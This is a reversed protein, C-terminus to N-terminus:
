LPTSESELGAELFHEASVFILRRARSAPQGGDRPRQSPSEKARGERTVRSHAGGEQEAGVELPSHHPDIVQPCRSDSAQSSAQPPRSRGSERSIRFPKTGM